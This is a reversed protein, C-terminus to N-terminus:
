DLDELLENVYVSIFIYRTEVVESTHTFVVGVVPISSLFPVSRIINSSYQYTGLIHNQGLLLLGSGNIKHEYDTSHEYYYKLGNVRFTLGFNDQVYNNSVIGSSTVNSTTLRDRSGGWFVSLTSDYVSSYTRYTFSSDGLSLAQVTVSFLDEYDFFRARGVYDSYSFGLHEATSKGLELYEVTVRKRPLPPLNALSDARRLNKENLVANYAAISDNKADLRRLYAARPSPMYEGRYWTSDYGVFYPKGGCKLGSYRCWTEFDKKTDGAFNWNCEFERLRSDIVYPEDIFKLYKGALEFCTGSDTFASVEAAACWGRLLLLVM